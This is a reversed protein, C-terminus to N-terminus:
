LGQGLSQISGGLRKRQAGSGGGLADGWIHWPDWWHPLGWGLDGGGWGMFQCRHLKELPFPPTVEAAGTEGVHKAPEWMRGM